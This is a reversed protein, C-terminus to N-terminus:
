APRRFSLISLVVMLGLSVVSLWMALRQESLQVSPEYVVLILGLGGVGVAFAYVKAIRYLLDGVNM